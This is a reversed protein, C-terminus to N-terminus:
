RELSTKGLQELLHLLGLVIVLDAFSIPIMIFGPIKKPLPLNLIVVIHIIYIPLLEAGFRWRLACARNVYIVALFVGTVCFLVFGLNEQDFHIFIAYLPALAAAFILGVLRPNIAASKPPESELTM